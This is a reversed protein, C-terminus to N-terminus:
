LLRDSYQCVFHECTALGLRKTETGISAVTQIWVFSTPQTSHTYSWLTLLLSRDILEIFWASQLAHQIFSAGRALSWSFRLAAQISSSIECNWYHRCSSEGACEDVAKLHAYDVAVASSYYNCLVAETREWHVCSFAWGNALTCLLLGERRYRMCTLATCDLLRVLVRHFSPRLLDGM